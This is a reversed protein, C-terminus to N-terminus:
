DQGHLKGAQSYLGHQEIHQQVGPPVLGAISVGTECRQRIDTSSVDATAAEILIISPAHATEDLTTVPSWSDRIGFGSDREKKLRVMRDALAPLLRPLIELPFVPRSVVAFNAFDLIMPYDHWSEIEAFADSGVVFFLEHASYGREHFTKLTTSTYSTGATRLELDCARWRERGGVAISVMAFRHYGSALPQPRHPPVHGTIVFLQELDLARFAADGVDLHGCHVPDFTGGLIGFRRSGLPPHRPHEVGTLGGTAARRGAPAV